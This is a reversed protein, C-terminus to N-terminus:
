VLKERIKNLVAPLDNLVRSDTIRIIRLGKAEMVADRKADRTKKEPDLHYKGDVEIVLRQSPCYFDVIWGLIIAQRRFKVGLKKARLEEWLVKESATSNAM